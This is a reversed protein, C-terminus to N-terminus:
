KGLSLRHALMEPLGAAIIKDQATQIDYEVRRITVEQNEVDYVAYSSLWIGDRPQGTSGINIFYKRGMELHVNMAEIPEVSDGKVYIKPTHTHGYFCLQTFQYSFSAMADFKNTVYTWGGPTDLTAHVITFDRVQRVLKLSKLYDCDEPTMQERTWEMAQRALANLGDLSSTQVAEEDHNGKVVPCGMSRVMDLCERPNAGYGVIDGVCIRDTCGQQDADELVAQFAELNAHIDGFIAYKM